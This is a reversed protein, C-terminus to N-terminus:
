PVIVTNYIKLNRITGNFTAANSYDALTIKNNNGHEMDFAVSCGLQGDLYLRGMSGDYTIVVKHWTNLQYTVSCEAHNSNNYKLEVGSDSDLYFGLWRYLQGGMIVVMRKRESVKFSVEISLSYFDVEEIPPTIATYGNETDYPIGNLYIGGDQFPVNQLTMPGNKGTVDEADNMLPYHAILGLIANPTFTSTPTHSPTGTPTSTATPIPPTSTASPTISPIPVNTASPTIAPVTAIPATASPLPTSSPLITPTVTPVNGPDPDVNDNLGDGDTDINNPSTHLEHVEYGDSLTDGDSDQNQPQTGYINIEEGDLLGDSDGDAILPDTTGEVEEKDILGDSDSDPNFPDTGLSIEDTDFLGDNDSDPVVVASTATPTPEPWLSSVFFASLCLMISLVGIAPIIWLPLKPQAELNGTLSQPEIKATQVKMSFPLQKSQGLLPRQKPKIVFPLTASQGASIKQQRQPNDFLLMDGPDQATIFFSTTTNGENHVTIRSTGEDVLNIPHMEASFHMFPQVLISGMGEVSEGQHATSTAVIRYNHAEAKILKDRPPHIAISLSVSDGPMLEYSDQPLSFWNFPIDEISLIIRDVFDSANFLQAKIEAQQGLEIDINTPDITLILNQNRSVIQTGRDSLQSGIITSLGSLKSFSSSKPSGLPQWRLFYPGIRIPQGPLIPEPIDGLLRKGALFTGNSSGLDVIQWGTDKQRLEAHHRSVETIELSIDNQRSRGITLVPKNLSVARPKEGHRAILLRDEADLATLNDGMQSPELITGVPALATALSHVFEPPTFQTKDTETLQSAAQRLAAALAEGTQFREDPQKAIAKLIIDSVTNPLGPRISNPLPPPEDRHKKIAESPSKIKFPLKGTTLQYLMIGLSYLDARGDLKKGLCQEPSMYPYTGMFTGVETQVGGAMLKALGFDTVIAELPPEDNQKPKDLRRLLVNDPKVDRHIIGPQQNHAHGLADAVQALIFLTESLEVIKGSHIRQRIHTGLSAGHIYEMVIYLPFKRGVTHINIISPHSSLRAAAQAEQLFRGRFLKQRALHDHMVKLAVTRKLDLDYAKYVAGMGGEGLLTQIKYNEIQQGILNNM